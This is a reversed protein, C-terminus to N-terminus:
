YKAIDSAWAEVIYPLNIMNEIQSKAECSRQACDLATEVDLATSKLLTEVAPRYVPLSGSIDGLEHARVFNTFLESATTLIGRLRERRVTASEKEQSENKADVYSLVFKALDPWFLKGQALRTCLESRFRVGDADCCIRAARLSGDSFVALKEGQEMSTAIKQEVLLQALENQALPLFRIIQCRSRITPLQMALNTGLLILISGAPPEELTKLLSNAGELNLLDTDDVVAFKRASVFPKRSIEFCLGSRMRNEKEGVLLELPLLMKDPPKCVYYFDPHAPLVIEGPKVEATPNKIAVDRVGRIKKPTAKPAANQPEQDLSEIPQNRFLRCSECHDCPVFNEMLLSDDDHDSLKKRGTCLLTKALVFAFSRKGIGDPGVFLFSGGLRGRADARAFELAIRDHGVIGQWSM